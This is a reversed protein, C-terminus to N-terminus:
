FHLPISFCNPFINLNTKCIDHQYNMQENNEASDFHEQHINNAEHESSQQQLLMSVFPNADEEM